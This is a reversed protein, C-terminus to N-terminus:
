FTAVALRRGQRELLWCGDREPFGREPRGSGEPSGAPAAVRARGARFRCSARLGRGLRPDPGGFGPELSVFSWRCAWGLLAEPRWSLCTRRFAGRPFTADRDGQRLKDAAERFAALFWGYAERLEKRVRKTAAHVFPAPSRDLHVPRTEPDQELIAAVGLPEIGKKEREVRRGDGPRVPARRGPRPVRCPGSAELLSSPQPRGDPAPRSRRAQSDPPPPAPQAGPDPRVLNGRRGGRHDLGPASHVGPWDEARAVLHEKVGQALCYRLRGVQAAEEDSVLIADYRRAWVAAFWGTLRGVERALNGNFYTM